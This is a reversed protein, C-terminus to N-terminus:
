HSQLLEIASGDTASPLTGQFEEQMIRSGSMGEALSAGVARELNSFANEFDFLADFYNNQIKIRSKEAKLLDIFSIERKKYKKRITEILKEIKPLYKRDYDRLREKTFEYLKYTESVELRIDKELTERNKKIQEIRKEAAEVQRKELGLVPLEIDLGVFVGATRENFDVEAGADAIILPWYDAKALDKLLQALELQRKNEIIEPKEELAKKLLEEETTLGEKLKLDRPDGVRRGKEVKEGLLEELVLKAKEVEIRSDELSQIIDLLEEEVLLEDVESLDEAKKRGAKIFDFTKELLKIREQNIYVDTFAKIVREEVEIMRENLQAKQLERRKEQIKKRIKGLGGTEFAKQLGFNYTNDATDANFLFFPNLINAESVAGIGTIDVRGRELQIDPNNQLASTIAQQM